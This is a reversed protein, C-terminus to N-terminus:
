RRCYAGYYGGIGSPAITGVATIRVALAEQTAILIIRSWPLRLVRWVLLRAITYTTAVTISLGLVLRTIANVFPPIVCLCVGTLM